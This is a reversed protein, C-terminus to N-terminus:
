APRRPKRDEPRLSDIITALLVKKAPQQEAALAALRAATAIQSGTLEHADAIAALDVDPGLQAKAGLANQWLQRRQEANPRPFEIVAQLRRIFADDLNTRMNSALIVLGAYDEIRQLLYSVEQNAYRDHAGAIATRQGFLADAEDLLLIADLSEAEAFVADLNKETEGIYKSILSSLDIRYVPVALEQGLLAATLTKGTGSPGHFLVRYGTKKGGARLGRHQKMGARVQDIKARTTPDLVLDAWTLTTTVPRATISPLSKRTSGM